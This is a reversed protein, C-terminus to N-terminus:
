PYTLQCSNNLSVRKWDTGSKVGGGPIANLSSAIANWKAESDKKTFSSSFKGVILCLQEPQAMLEILRQKQTQSMYGKRKRDM